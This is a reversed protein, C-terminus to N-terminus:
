RVTTPDPAPSPNIPLTIETARNMLRAGREYHETLDPDTNFYYSYNTLNIGTHLSCWKEAGEVGKGANKRRQVNM